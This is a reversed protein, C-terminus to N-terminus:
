MDRLCKKSGSHIVAVSVVPACVAIFFLDALKRILYAVGVQFTRNKGIEHKDGSGTIEADQDWVETVMRFVMIHKGPRCAISPQHLLKLLM